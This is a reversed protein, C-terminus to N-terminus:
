PAEMAVSKSGASGPKGCQATGSADRMCARLKVTYIGGTQTLGEFSVKITNLVQRALMTPGEFTSCNATDSEDAYGLKTHRMDISVYCGDGTATGDRFLEAEYFLSPSFDHIMFTASIVRTSATEAMEVLSEGSEDLSPIPRLSENDWDYGQRLSEAYIRDIPIFIGQGGAQAYLVGLLIVDDSAGQKSFVPSGSDGGATALGNVYSLCEIYEDVGRRNDGTGVMGGPCTPDTGERVRGKTWGTTRGVKYVEELKKPARTAVIHFRDTSASGTFYQIKPKPLAFDSGIPGNSPKFIYGTRFTAGSSSPKEGYSQDGITCDDHSISTEEDEMMRCTTEDAIETSDAVQSGFAPPNPSQYWEDGIRVSCHETTSITDVISNNSMDRSALTFSSTCTGWKEKPIGGPPAPIVTKILMQLSGMVNSSQYDFLTATTNHDWTVSNGAAVAQKLKNGIDLHAELNVVDNNKLVIGNCISALDLVSEATGTAPVAIPGHDRDMVIDISNPAVGRTVTCSVEVDVIVERNTSNRVRLPLEVNGQTASRPSSLTATPRQIIAVDPEAIIIRFGQHGVASVEMIVKSKEDSSAVWFIHGDGLVAHAGSGINPSFVPEWVGASVEKEAQIVYARGTETGISMEFKLQSGTTRRSKVTPSSPNVDAVYIFFTLTGIKTYCDTRALDRCVQIDVRYLGNVKPSFGTFQYPNDSNVLLRTENVNEDIGSPGWQLRLWYNYTNFDPSRLDYNVRVTAGVADVQATTPGITPFTKGEVSSSVDSWEAALSLGDGYASVRFYYTTEELLGTVTHITLPITDDDTTWVSSGSVLYEIRYHSFGNISDWALTVGTDKSIVKRLGTPASLLCPATMASDPTAADSWETSYTISDGRASVRFYYTTACDLGTVTYSTANIDGSGADATTWGTLGDLSRELKYRHADDVPDWSLSVSDDDSGTARLNEPAPAPPSCYSLNLSGLDNTTVDNLAVPICGSLSNGSLRLTTLGPLGGLEEPIMGTLQNNSLDLSTLGTLSGLGAPIIGNLSKNALALANVRNSPGSVTVGDWTGIAATSAWNLTAAGALDSKLGLLISCDDVLALNTAHYTIATGDTCGRASDTQSQVSVASWPGWGYVYRRGDGKVRVQFLYSSAPNLGSVAYEPETTEPVETWTVDGPRQYRVQYKEAGSVPNSALLVTTARNEEATLGAPAPPEGTTAELSLSWEGWGTAAVGGDGYARAQVEYSTDAIIGTVDYYAANIDSSETWAPAGVVRHRVQYKGAGYVHRWSLYIDTDSVFSSLTPTPVPCLSTPFDVPFSFPGWDELFTAGDGYASMRFDYSTDCALNGVTISTNSINDDALMWQYQYFRSYELRYREAGTLATWSLDISDQTQSTSQIGTPATPLTLDEMLTVTVTATDTGGNGDSAQVTLSYSTTTAPDLTGAVTIEGSAPDLALDGAENGTTISYEITDGADEDTAFVTEVYTGAAANESVKFDYSPSSFEPSDNVDNLDIRVTVASTGGSGDSAEVTLTYFSTAEYNLAGAVTIMGSSAGIDFHGAADGSIISYSVTDGTDPDTASVTGVHTGNAADENVRFSPSPMSFTPPHNNICASTTGSVSGTSPSGFTTSHASGDGRASVRFHYATACDLGTVTYSTANIDGAGPDATAWGTSGDLSRELKYGHADTVPDWSLSVSDADSGTVALNDPTLALSSCNILNLSALDNTTVDNLAVPICGTLSNGSLRLTTLGPLSGLEVPITGTLQNNSLDLSTLGPLSGLGAPIIGSLSKNALALGTVRAPTGGTTVGEWTGIDLSYAWNLTGAGALNDKDQMLSACDAILEKPATDPLGGARACSTNPGYSFVKVLIRGTNGNGDAAEVPFIALRSTGDLDAAVTIAGTGPNIAFWESNNGGPAISYSIPDGNPDEAIVTGAEFDALADEPVFLTTSETPFAPSVCATTTADLEDSLDGWADAHFVGDGYARVRFRYATNCVLGDVTHSLVTLEDDATTWNGSNWVRYEVWYKAAHNVGGWSLAARTEGPTGVLNEPAPVLSECPGTVRSASETSPSGFTTSYPSGDGRASVRFHYTKPCDLGTVKYSTANIDGAGLDATTWGTLGDLSRELRYGHADTVPDWSLSVTTGTSATPTLGTPAPADPCGTTMRSVDGTSRPGFTTSYHGGDGRASVKFYHRTNCELGYATYGASSASGITSNVPTWPGTSSTGRELKYYQVNPRPDWSLTVYYQGSATASLGTPAPAVPPESTTQSVDSSAASYNTSYARGDGRARVRFDYSTNYGLRDVTYFTNTQPYGAHLWIASSSEKYEVKYGAAHTVGNWDLSVSYDTYSTVMLGTPHPILCPPTESVDSSAASYTTSYPNGDGWARVQFDYSVNCTLRVVTYSTNSLAYGAHLWTSSSSEKYEVKYGAAHTSEDWELSVRDEVYSTAGLGTPPPIVPYETTQSVDSSAFGYTTSYPSGDGRARVQFDYSTGADLRDVTYSTNSLAYGAHLWTFSGSRRYEVKYGAAHTVGNWDLSVSYDTYSTVRLGTPAPALAETTQSVDSSADGYTTSYPNGNGRARVRFDYGTNEYLRDVTYSTGSFAYGAHLWITSNSRRYEVKYGAADTVTNWGLSVSHPAYSTVRLGTPAPAEPYATTQSVESSAFGYTTSYPSGDGRARVEFDYSINHDLRDVTYSANTLAYGAHRWTFSGSRRYEVKYGAIDDAANWVLSVSDETYANVRLGTPAPALTETTQSVDSSAFGYSTSYPNGDGRARVRFDYGTGEGLRNVTYSTGSFAYGAHLWIFSDSRRYEVKYGAAGTVANWSLSVSYDTYSTVRLGTPAPAEPYTTTESVDSSADGYTTSYPSGDGRARVRFDYGTNADLRDVTYFTNTLAYGGHLWTASSSKKYEVKYGDVDNAANWDLSVSNETHSTVRLGTPAPANGVSGTAGDDEVVVDDREATDLDPNRRETGQDEAGSAGEEEVVDDRQATDLNPDFGETDQGEAGTPSGREVVVDDREATDLDPDLGETGQGEADTANGREVVVDDRQATDVGPLRGETEQDVAGSAGSAEEVVDDRQATDVGPLLGETGRDVAGTAGGEEVVVDDRQATDVGPLLGETEQEVEVSAGGEEEVVDDRQATDLGEPPEDAQVIALSAAILLLLITIAAFLTVRRM